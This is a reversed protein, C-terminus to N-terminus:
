SVQFNLQFAVTVQDGTKLTGLMATPPKINFESMKLEKSGNITVKDGTQVGTFPLSIRKTVGALTVDGTLTGSFKGKDSSLKDVSVLKFVVDPYKEVKLADHTKGTMISNESVISNSKFNVQVRDIGAVQNNQFKMGLNVNFKEVSEEWEHLNSTGKISINSQSPILEVKQQSRATLTGSLVLILALIGRFTRKYKM